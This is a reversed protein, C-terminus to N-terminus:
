SKNHIGVLLSYDILNNKSFFDADKYIVEIIRKRMDSTVKIKENKKTFDNDKLAITYNPEQGEKITERGQTSGKLDYRM